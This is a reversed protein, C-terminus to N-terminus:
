CPSCKEAILTFEGPLKEDDHKPHEDFEKIVLGARIASNLIESLTYFRLMCKPFDKQKEPDFYKMYPVHGEHIRSDFYDGGTKEINRVPRSVAIAKRFPHYDSLVFIGKERLINRVVTFFMDIDCFYHLIGGEAYAYDFYSAYKVQDATCFDCVEYSIKVGLADALELAYKKQAESIDFVVAAAGMVAFACARRGDSGCISAIRKGQVDPFYKEHCRLFKRPCNRIAEAAAEPTGQATLRWEYAEHEWALKNQEAININNM